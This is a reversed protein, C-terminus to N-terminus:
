DYSIIEHQSCLLKSNETQSSQNRLYVKYSDLKCETADGCTSNSLSCNAQYISISSNFDSGNYNYFYEGFDELLLMFNSGSEYSIKASDNINNFSNNSNLNNNDDSSANISINKFQYLTSQNFSNISSNHSHNTNSYNSYNQSTYNNIITSTITLTTAAVLPIASSPSTSALITSPTSTSPYLSTATINVLSSNERAVTSSLTSNEENYLKFYDVTSNFNITDNLAM